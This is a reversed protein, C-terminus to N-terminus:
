QSTYDPTPAMLEYNRRRRGADKHFLSLRLPYASITPALINESFNFMEDTKNKRRQSAVLVPPQ